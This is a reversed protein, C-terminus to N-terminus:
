DIITPSNVLDNNIDCGAGLTIAALALVCGSMKAKEGLTIAAGALIFGKVESFSGITAAVTVVWEIKDLTPAADV